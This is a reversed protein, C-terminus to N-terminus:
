PSTERSLWAFRGWLLAASVAGAVITAWVIGRVGGGLPIAALYGAPVLVVVYSLAHTVTPVWIDGRARLSQAAVVQLGDTVFFLWACLVLASAASARVAPDRTYAGAIDSAGFGVAASLVVTLVVTTVFGLRAARRIGVADGAGYAQGVLVATATAVGLPMMFLLALINLIIAWSAVALAGLWGAVITMASFAGSEIAYSVSAGYGVRRLEASAQPDSPAPAFIGFGRAQRWGVIAVATFAFLATRSLATSWASAEAGAVGFRGPVLWLNLGLNVVNAGWMALTGPLARGHAELWFIGADALMIPVLSLALVRLVPTAGRVLDADLGLMALLPGGAVALLAAAAVGVWFAYVLGRRLVAGTEAARGAGIAQSTLVQVGQLLGVATTLIVGTPAWALALYGLEVASHRGVVLTDVLGMVMIGLRSAVVPGALRLLDRAGVRARDLTATSM